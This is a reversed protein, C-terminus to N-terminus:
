APKGGQCDICASPSSAAKTATTGPIRSSVPCSAGMAQWTELLKGYTRAQEVPLVGASRAWRLVHSLERENLVLQAIGTVCTESGDFPDSSEVSSADM